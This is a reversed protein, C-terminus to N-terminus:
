HAPLRLWIWETLDRVDAGRGGTAPYNNDNVVLLTRADLAHVSEITLWPYRFLPGTGGRPRRVNIRLLDARLSKSLLTDSATTAVPEAIRYIRKIAAADGQKGDRELVLLSGDGSNAIEGISDAPDDMPYRWSRASYHRANLDFEFLRAEGAADGAISGELMALLRKDDAALALGELGRSSRVSSNAQGALVLPHQPSRLTEGSHGARPDPLDYPPELLRGDAAFHLLWPGIEDSIWFSGDPMVVMSEPDLDAGTLPRGSLEDNTLRWPFRADPDTLEVRRLLSVTTQSPAAAFLYIALRWDPSNWKTGYGNDALAWWTNPQPGPKISSIGQVPQSAFRPRSAREGRDNYQGSAPGTTFSEAPWIARGILQVRPTAAAAAPPAAVTPAAEVPACLLTALLLTTVPNRLM